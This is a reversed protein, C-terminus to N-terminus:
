SAKWRAMFIFDGFQQQMHREHKETLRELVSPAITLFEPVTFYPYRRLICMLRCHLVRFVYFHLIFLLLCKGVLQLHIKLLIGQWSEYNGLATQQLM